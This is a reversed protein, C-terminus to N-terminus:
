PGSCGASSRPSSARTACSRAYRAPRPASPACSGSRGRASPSRCSCATPMGFLSIVLSMALLAYLLYIIQDVRGAVWDRYEPVTRVKATPYDGLARAIQAKARGVAADDGDVLAITFSHPDRAASLALFQHADIIVGQLIAPDRYRGVAVLSTTRGAPTRITFRGGVAIRHQKGFQEEILAEGQGLQSVDVADSLWAFEYVAPFGAPEVGNLVDTM